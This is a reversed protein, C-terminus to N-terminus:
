LILISYHCWGRCAHFLLICFYFERAQKKELTGHVITHIPHLSPYATHSLIYALLFSSWVMWILLTYSIVFTGICPKLIIRPLLLNSIIWTAFERKTRFALKAQRGLRVEETDEETILSWRGVQPSDCAQSGGARRLQAKAAQSCCHTQLWPARPARLGVGQLFCRSM